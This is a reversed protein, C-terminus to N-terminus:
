PAVRSSPARPRPGPRSTDGAARMKLAVHLALREEPSALDVDVLELAKAVQRRFTNRHMFAADAATNRNHHDLALELVRGLNTGHEQDYDRLGALQAEVFAATRQPDLTELLESLSHRRAWDVEDDRRTEARRALERLWAAEAPLREPFTSADGVLAHIAAGPRLARAAEIVSRAAARLRQRSAGGPFVLLQERRDLPVLLAKPEGGWAARSMRSVVPDTAEGRVWTLLGLRHAHAVPRRGPSPGADVRAPREALRPTQVSDVAPM